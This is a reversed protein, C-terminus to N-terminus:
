LNAANWQIQYSGPQKIENALVAVQIGARNYVMIKVLAEDAVKYRITTIGSFANPVNQYVVNKNIKLRVNIDSYILLNLSLPSKTVTVQMATFVTIIFILLLLSKM